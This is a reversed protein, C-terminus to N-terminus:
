SIKKSIIEKLIEEQKNINNNIAQNTLKSIRSKPNASAKKLYDHLSEKSPKKIEISLSSALNEFTTDFNFIKQNNKISALIECLTTPRSKGALKTKLECELEGYYLDHFINKLIHPNLKPNLYVNCKELISVCEEFVKKEKEEKSIIGTKLDSNIKIMEDNILGRIRDFFILAKIEDQSLDKLHNYVYQGLMTYDMILITNYKELHKSFRACDQELGEEGLDIKSKKLESKYLNDGHSFVGVKLMKLIEEEMKEKLIDLDLPAHEHKWRRFHTDVDNITYNKVIKNTWFDAFRYPPIETTLHIIENLLDIINKLGNYLAYSFTRYETKSDDCFQHMSKKFSDAQASTFVYKNENLPLIDVMHNIITDKDEQEVYYKNNWVPSSKEIWFYIDTYKEFDILAEDNDIEIEIRDRVAEVEMQVQYIETLLSLCQLRRAMPAYYRFDTIFSNILIKLNRLRIDVTM